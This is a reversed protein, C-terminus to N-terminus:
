AKFLVCKIQRLHTNDFLYDAIYNQNEAIFYFLFDRINIYSVVETEFTFLEAVRYSIGLKEFLQNLKSFLGGLRSKENAKITAFIQNIILYEGSKLSYFLQSFKVFSQLTPYEFTFNANISESDILKLVPRHFDNKKELYSLPALNKNKAYKEMASLWLAPMLDQQAASPHWQHFNAVQSISLTKGSLGIAQLRKKLDLDEVGWVKFYEDFGGIAYMKKRPVAILGAAMGVSSVRYPYPKNFDLNQYNIENEPLYYCQYQVFANEDIQSHMVTAFHPSYILDIDAIILFKGKAMSIGLNVAHSRSWLQYRTDFYFYKLLSYNSCLEEVQMKIHLDSGYDAFIIEFDTFNQNQISQLCNKVRSVERNRYPVIFSFLM